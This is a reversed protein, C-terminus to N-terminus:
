GSTDRGATTPSQCLHDMFFHPYAGAYRAEIIHSMAYMEAQEIGYEKWTVPPQFRAEKKAGAARSVQLALNFQPSKCCGMRIPVGLWTSLPWVFVM